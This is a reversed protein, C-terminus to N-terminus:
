KKLINILTCSKLSFESFIYKLGVNVDLFLIQFAGKM